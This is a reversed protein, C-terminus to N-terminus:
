LVSQQKRDSRKWYELMGLRINYRHEASLSRGFNPNNAGQISRSIKRKTAETHKKRKKM